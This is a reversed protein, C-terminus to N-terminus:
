PVRAMGDGVGRILVITDGMGVALGLKEGFELLRGGDVHFVRLKEEEGERRNNVNAVALSKAALDLVRGVTFDTSYFFEGKPIKSSVTASSAEVHLYIRKEM